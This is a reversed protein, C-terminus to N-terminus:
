IIKEAIRLKASKSRSNAEEEYSSAEIPKKNILKLSARHNCVCIPFDSPCICDITFEKFVQKVIRDELSHFTIIAIRGGKNLSEIMDRITETLKALEGNVEIRIAQFTKKAPHSGKYRQKPPVAYRIIEVLELTTKIPEKERAEVIRKAINKAYREEGYNFLIKTIESEPYENVVIYASLYQNKDMRMDIPADKMYSFGREANDIQYSSVGLDLLIGDVKSIDLDAIINKFNKFDDNVFITKKSYDALRIRSANIAEIDKDIGILKGNKLRKVIEFSHGAGGLTGDVYIGNPKINLGELCDELMIPTHKFEM